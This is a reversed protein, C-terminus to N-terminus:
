TVPMDQTHIRKVIVLHSIKIEPDSHLIDLYTVKNRGPVTSYKGFETLDPVEFDFETRGSKILIHLICIKTCPTICAGNCELLNDRVLQKNSYHVHILGEDPYCDTTTDNLILQFATSPTTNYMKRWKTDYIARPRDSDGLFVNGINDKIPFIEKIYEIFKNQMEDLTKSQVQDLIEDAM